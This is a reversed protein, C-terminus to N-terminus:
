KTAARRIERGIPDGRLLLDLPVWGEHSLPIKFGTAASVLGARLLTERDTTTFPLPSRALRSAWNAIVRKLEHPAKLPVLLEQNALARTSKRLIFVADWLGTGDHAHPGVGAEGPAPFFNTVKLGSASIASALASWANPLAHRFTFMMLGSPKMVRRVERFADGLGSTYRAESKNDSGKGILSECSIRTKAKPDDVIGLLQLWPLFFEALESYAINDFYPPDTLVLDVSEADLGALDRATGCFISPAASSPKPPVSRFGGKRVPEKPRLAFETARMIKRVTNPFTGRGTGDCWPNLEVPRPIHRFARISFIPTLRRWGAAYATMM